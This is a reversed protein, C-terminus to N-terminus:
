CRHARCLGVRGECRPTVKAMRARNRTLCNSFFCVTATFCCCASASAWLRAASAILLVALTVARLILM